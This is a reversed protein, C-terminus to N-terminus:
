VVINDIGLILGLDAVVSQIATHITVMDGAWVNMNSFPVTTQVFSGLPVNKRAIQEAPDLQGTFTGIATWEALFAAYHRQFTIADATLQQIAADVAQYQAQQQQTLSAFPTSM